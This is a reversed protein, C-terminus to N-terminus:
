SVVRGWRHRSGGHGREVLEIELFGEGREIL